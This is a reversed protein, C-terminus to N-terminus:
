SNKFPVMLSIIHNPTHEKPLATHAQDPFEKSQYIM